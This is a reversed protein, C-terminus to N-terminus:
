LDPQVTCCKKGDRTQIPYSVSKGNRNYYCSSLAGSIPRKKDKKFPFLINGSTGIQIAEQLADCDSLYVHDTGGTDCDRLKIHAFYPNRYLICRLQEMSQKRKDARHFDSYATFADQDEFAGSLVYQQQHKMDNGAHEVMADLHQYVLNKHKEEERLLESQTKVAM